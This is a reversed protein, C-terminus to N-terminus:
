VYIYIYIYVYVYVCMYVVFMSISLMIPGLGECFNVASMLESFTTSESVQGPQTMTSAQVQMEQRVSHGVADLFEELSMSAVTAGQSTTTGVVGTAGSAM